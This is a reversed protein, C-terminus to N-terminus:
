KRKADENRILERIWRESYGFKKALVKVNETKHLFIIQEKVYEKSFLRVPFTIQQGKFTSYLKLTDEVGVLETMEKYIGNLGDINLVFKDIKIM